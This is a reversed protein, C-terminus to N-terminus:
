HAHARARQARHHGLACSRHPFCFCSTRVKKQLVKLAYIKKTDKKRVQFVKGFSGKGIVQLLDFDQIGVKDAAKVRVSGGLKAAAPATAAPPSRPSAAGATPAAGATASGATGKQAYKGREGVRDAEDQLTVIWSDREKDNDACFYYTRNTTEVRFCCKKKKYETAQVTKVEAMDIVGLAAGGDGKSYSLEENKLV